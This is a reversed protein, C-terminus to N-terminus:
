RRTPKNSVGDEMKDEEAVATVEEVVAVKPALAHRILM